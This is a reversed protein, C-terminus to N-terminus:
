SSFKSTQAVELWGEIWEEVQSSDGGCSADGWTVVTGGKLLAAFAACTSEIREVDKLKAQVVEPNWSHNPLPKAAEHLRMCILIQSLSMKGLLPMEM